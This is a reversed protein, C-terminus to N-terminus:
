MMQSLSRAANKHKERSIICHLKSKTIRRIIFNYFLNKEGKVFVVSVFVIFSKKVVCHIM